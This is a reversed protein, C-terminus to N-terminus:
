VFSFFLLHVRRCKVEQNSHSSNLSCSNFLFKSSLASWDLKDQLSLVKILIVVRHENVRLVQEASVLRDRSAKFIQVVWKTEVQKKNKGREIIRNNIFKRLYSYHILVPLFPPKGRKRECGCDIM